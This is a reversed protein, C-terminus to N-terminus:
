KISDIATQIEKQLDESKAATKMEKLVGKVSNSVFPNKNKTALAKAPEIGEKITADDMRKIYTKYYPISLFMSFGTSNTFLNLFFKHEASTGEKSYFEAIATQMTGNETDNEKKAIEWAKTKNSSAYIKLLSSEVAYSIDKSASNYVEENNETSYVDAIVKLARSRVSSNEDKLALNKLITYQQKQLEPKLYKV